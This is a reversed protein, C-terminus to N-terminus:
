WCQSNKQRESIKTSSSHQRELAKMNRSLKSSGLFYSGHTGRGTLLSDQGARHDWKGRLIVTNRARTYWRTGPSFGRKQSDEGLKKKWWSVWPSIDTEQHRSDWYDSLPLSPCLHRGLIRESRGPPEVKTEHTIVHSQNPNHNFGGSHALFIAQTEGLM